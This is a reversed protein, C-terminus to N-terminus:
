TCIFETRTKLMIDVSGTM